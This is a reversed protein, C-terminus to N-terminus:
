KDQYNCTIIRGEPAVIGTLVVKSAGIKGFILRKNVFHLFMQNVRILLYLVHKTAYSIPINPATVGV